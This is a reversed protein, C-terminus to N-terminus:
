IYMITLCGCMHVSILTSASSYLSPHVNSIRSPFLCALLIRCANILFLLYPYIAPSYVNTALSCLAPLVVYIALNIHCRNRTFASCHLKAHALSKVGLTTPPSDRIYIYPDKNSPDRERGGATLYLGLHNGDRSSDLWTDSMCVTYLLYIYSNWGDRQRELYRPATTIRKELQGMRTFNVYVYTTWKQTRYLWGATWEEKYVEKCKCKGQVPEKKRGELSGLQSMGGGKRISEWSKICVIRCTCAWTGWYRVRCVSWVFRQIRLQFRSNRWEAKLSDWTNIIWWDFTDTSRRRLGRLLMYFPPHMVLHLAHCPVIYSLTCYIVPYM